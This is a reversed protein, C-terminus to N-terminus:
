LEEVWDWHLEHVIEAMASYYTNWVQRHQMGNSRLVYVKHLGVGQEHRIRLCRALLGVFEAGDPILDLIVPRRFPPAVLSRNQYAEVLCLGEHAPQDALRERLEHNSDVNTTINRLAKFLAPRQSSADLTNAAQTSLAELFAAGYRVIHLNKLSPLMGFSSRWTETQLPINSLRLSELNTSLFPEWLERFVENRLVDNSYDSRPRSYILSAPLTISFKIYPVDSPLHLQTGAQAWAKLCLLDTPRSHNLQICRVPGIQGTLCQGFDRLEKRVTDLPVRGYSHGVIVHSTTSPYDLNEIFNHCTDWRDTLELHSLNPLQASQDEEGVNLTFAEELTLTNLGRLHNLIRYLENVSMQTPPKVIQLTTLNKLAPQYRPVSCGNLSLWQLHPAYGGFLNSPLEAKARYANHFADPLVPLCITLSRMLDANHALIPLSAMPSFHTATTPLITLERIRHINNEFLRALEQSISNQGITAIVYLKAAKSRIIKEELWQPSEIHNQLLSQTPFPTLLYHGYLPRPPTALDKVSIASWLSSSRLAVERWHSCVYTVDIWKPRSCSQDQETAAVWHFVETLIEDPLRAPDSITNITKKLTHILAELEVIRRCIQEHATRKLERSSSCTVQVGEFNNSGTTVVFTPDVVTHINLPGYMLSFM